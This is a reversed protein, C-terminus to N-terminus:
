KYKNKRVTSTTDFRLNNFKTGRSHVAHATIAKLEEMVLRVFFLKLASPNKLISSSKIKGDFLM